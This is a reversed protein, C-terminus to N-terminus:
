LLGAFAAGSALDGIGWEVAALAALRAWPVACSPERTIRSPVVGALPSKSGYAAVDCGAYLADVATTSSLTAIRDFEALAAVLSGGVVPIPPPVSLTDEPHARWLPRLGAARADAIAQRQWGAYDLGYLASDTPVQGMLLVDDRLPRLASRPVPPLGWWRFFDAQNESAGDLLEPVFAGRGIRCREQRNISRYGRELVIVRPVLPRAREANKESWVLAVDAPQPNEWYHVTRIMEADHGIRRLGDLAASMFTYPSGAAPSLSSALVVVRM